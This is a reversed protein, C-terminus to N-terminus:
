SRDEIHVMPRWPIGASQVVVRGTTYASAVFNNLVLDLRLRPSFGYAVGNRLYATTFNADALRGLDEDVVAKSRAYATLPGIETNETVLTEDACGYVSCSSSNLFRRVGAQKALRALRAVTLINIDYTLQPDLNGLADNSLGGLHIITDIGELNEPEIDRLDKRIELPSPNPATCTCDEFMGNDLGVVELGESILMPVIATGIYGKHGTVLVRM